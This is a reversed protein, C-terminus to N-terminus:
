MTTDYLRLLEDKDIMFVSHRYESPIRAIFERRAQPSIKGSVAVVYNSIHIEETTGHVKHSILFSSKCQEILTNIVSMKGSTLNGRKAQISTHIVQQLKNIETVVFDKGHENSGHTHFVRIYGLKRFLPKLFENMFQVENFHYDEDWVLNNLTRMGITLTTELKEVYRKFVDEFTQDNCEESYHVYLTKDIISDEEVYDIRLGNVKGQEAISGLISAPTFKYVWSDDYYKEYDYNIISSCHIRGNIVSIELNSDFENLIKDKTCFQPGLLRYDCEKGKYTVFSKVKLSPDILKEFEGWGSQNLLYVYIEEKGEEFPDHTDYSNIINGYKTKAELNSVEISTIIM